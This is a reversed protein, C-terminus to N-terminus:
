MARGYKDKLATPFTPQTMDEGEKRLTKPDYILM